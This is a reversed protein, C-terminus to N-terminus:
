AKNALEITKDVIKRLIPPVKDPAVNAFQRYANLVKEDHDHIGAVGEFDPDLVFVPAEELRQVEDGPIPGFRGVQHLFGEELQPLPPIPDPRDVIRDSVEETGRQVSGPHSRTGCAPCRQSRHWEDRDAIREVVHIEPFVNAPHEELQRRPLPRGEDQEVQVAVAGLPGCLDHADTRRGDARQGRLASGHEAGRSARM